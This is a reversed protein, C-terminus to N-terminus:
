SLVDLSFNKSYGIFCWNKLLIQRLKDSYNIWWDALPEKANRRPPFCDETEAIM